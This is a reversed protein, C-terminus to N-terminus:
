APKQCMGFPFKLKSVIDLKKNDIQGHRSRMYSGDLFNFFARDYASLYYSVSCFFKILKQKIPTGLMTNGENSYLGIQILIARAANLSFLSPKVRMLEKAKETAEDVKRKEHDRKKCNEQNQKELADQVKRCFCFFPNCQFCVSFRTAQHIQALCHIAGAPQFGVGLCGRKLLLLIRLVCCFGLRVLCRCLFAMDKRM